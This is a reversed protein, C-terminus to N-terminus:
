KRRFIMAVFPVLLFSYFVKKIAEDMIFSAPKLNKLEKIREPLDAMKQNETAYKNFENLYRISSNTFNEFIQPQFTSLIYILLGSILGGTWLMFNGAVLGEWFHFSHEKKRARVLIMMFVLVLLPIFFDLLRAQPPIEGFSFAIWFFCSCGVGILVAGAFLIPYDRLANKM